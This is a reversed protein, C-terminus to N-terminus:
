GVIASTQPGTTDDCNRYLPVSGADMDEDDDDSDFTFNSYTPSPRDGVPAVPSTGARSQGPTPLHAHQSQDALTVHECAADVIQEVSVCIDGFSPRAAPDDHWCRTM